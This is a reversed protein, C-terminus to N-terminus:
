KKQTFKAAAWTPMKKFMLHTGQDINGYNLGHRKALLNLSKRSFLSIHGNRPACYWWTLRKSRSIHGDSLLTTFFMLSDHSFFKSLEDMMAHPDPVHEFVEFATIFHFNDLEEANMEPNEFPDYSLSNWGRTKLLESLHGNGGGFDLHKIKLKQDGFLRDIGQANASPRKELYEPDVQVYESNYILDKFKQKPWSCMEPAFVFDCDDCIFYYIPVFTMPIPEGAVGCSRSLDLVDIPSTHGKCIPCNKNM